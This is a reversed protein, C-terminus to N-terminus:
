GKNVIADFAERLHPYHYQYGSRMLKAPVVQQSDLLLQAMEGMLLKLGAEPVPLWSPRNLSKGLKKCFTQMTVSEPGTGNVPGRLEENTLVHVIAGAADARHIWPLWQKGSGLPGGMFFRFPPIMKAMAGGDKDLVAGFRMFVVRTMTEINKVAGEWRICTEALFDNGPGATETILENGRNSYFGAGSAQIFVSPKKQASAVAEALATAPEVRTSVIKQKQEPTWRKKAISEGCLNIVADAGDVFSTWQGQTKGDWQIPTVHPSPHKEPHRTLLLIRHNKGILQRILESGIFGTGGALIINM